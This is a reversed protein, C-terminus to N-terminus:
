QQVLKIDKKESYVVRTGEPFFVLWRGLAFQKPAENIITQIANRGAKRNIHIMNLLLIGWGFFPIFLLERKFIFCVPKKLTPRLLFRKGHVRSSQQM